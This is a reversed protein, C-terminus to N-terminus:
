IATIQCSSIWAPWFGIAMSFYRSKWEQPNEKETGGPLLVISMVISNLSKPPCWLSRKSDSSLKRCKRRRSIFICILCKPSIQQKQHGYWERKRLTFRGGRWQHFGNLQPKNPASLTTGTWVWLGSFWTLWNHLDWHSNLCGLVLLM